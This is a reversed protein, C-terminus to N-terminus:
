LLREYLELHKARTADLSFERAVRARAAAGLRRRLEANGLVRALADALAREDHPPVLIGADGVLEPVGGVASAVVPLGAAMAELVSMPLGESASSLVFVDAAALLEPVDGREGLLEVPGRLEAEIVPRDAGDGVIQARFTTSDVQALVRVLTLFTKPAKLRGVSVVVPPDGDLAARPAGAVDI